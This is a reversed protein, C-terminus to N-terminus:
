PTKKSKKERSSENRFTNIEKEIRVEERVTMIRIIKIQSTTEPGPVSGFVYYSDM